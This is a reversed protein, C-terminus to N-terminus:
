KEEGKKKLDEQTGVTAKQTKCQFIVTKGIFQEVWFVDWQEPDWLETKTGGQNLRPFSLM